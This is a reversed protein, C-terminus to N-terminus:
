RSRLFALEHDIDADTGYTDAYEQLVTLAQSFDGTYELAAVENYTLLATYDSDQLGLGTQFYGLAETYNGNRMYYMGVQNYVGANESDLSLAQSYANYANEAEGLMEYSLGLCILTEADKNETIATLEAVANQYEGLLYQVM